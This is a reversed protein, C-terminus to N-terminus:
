AKRFEVGFEFKMTMTNVDAANEESFSEEANRDIGVGFDVPPRFNPNLAIEDSM